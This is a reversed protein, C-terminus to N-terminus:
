WFGMKDSLVPVMHCLGFHPSAFALPLYREGSIVGSRDNGARRINAYLSTQVVRGPRPSIQYYPFSSIM